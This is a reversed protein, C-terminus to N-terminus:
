TASPPTELVDCAPPQSLAAILLTSLDAPTIRQPLSTTAPLGAAVRAAGLKRYFTRPSLMSAHAAEDLTGASSLEAIIALLDSDTITLPPPTFGLTVPAAGALRENGVLGPYRVWPLLAPIASDAAIAYVVSCLPVLRQALLDGPDVIALTAAQPRLVNLDALLAALVAPEMGVTDLLLPSRYEPLIAGRKRGQTPLFRLGIGAAGLQQRLWARRAPAESIVAGGAQNRQDDQTM